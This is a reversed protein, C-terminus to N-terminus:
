GTVSRVVAMLVWDVVWLALAMVMVMAMVVLTTQITEQRTPWVVKRVETRSEAAFHWLTRGPGSQLAVFGAAAFMALLGLVRYLQNMDDFHYFGAIGGAVLLVAISLKLKDVVTNEVEAKANM